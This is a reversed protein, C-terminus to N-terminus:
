NKEGELMRAFQNDTMHDDYQIERRERRGRGYHITIDEDIDDELLYNPLEDEAILRSPRPGTKGSAKWLREEEEERERDMEQFISYEEENRAVLANIQENSTILECEEKDTEEYLLSKLMDKRMRDDSTTNFMGAQIVKADVDLKFSARELIREEM